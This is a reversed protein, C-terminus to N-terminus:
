KIHVKLKIVKQKEQTFQGSGDNSVAASNGAKSENYEFGYCGTTTASKILTLYRKGKVVTAKLKLM